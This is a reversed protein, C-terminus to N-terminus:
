PLNAGIVQIDPEPSRANDVQEGTIQNWTDHRYTLTDRHTAACRTNAAGVDCNRRRGSLEGKVGLGPAVYVLVPPTRIM